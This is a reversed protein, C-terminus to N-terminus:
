PSCLKQIAAVRQVGEVKEHTARQHHPHGRAEGHELRTQHALFVVSIRVLFTARNAMAQMMYM